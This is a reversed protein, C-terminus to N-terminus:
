GLIANVLPGTGKRVTGITRILEAEGRILSKDDNFGKLIIVWDRQYEDWNRPLHHAKAGHQRMNEELQKFTQKKLENHIKHGNYEESGQKLYEAIHQNHRYGKNTAKGIYIPRYHFQYPVQGVQVQYDIEEFPDLYVYVYYNYRNHDFHNIRPSVKELTGYM